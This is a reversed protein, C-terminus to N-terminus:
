PVEYIELVAVGVTGDASTVVASFSTGAAVTIVLAADRSGSALPPAGVAASAAIARSDWDDNEAIKLGDGSYIELRPDTLIGPVGYAALQPGLARILITKTGEGSVTFGAILAQAGTGVMARASLNIVKSAVTAAPDYIEALVAGPSDATIRATGAGPAASVVLGADASGAPLPFAGVAAFAAADAAAWHDNEAIKTASADFVELRPDTASNPVGFLALSPGIARVVLPKDADARVFFGVTLDAGSGDLQSRVSLNSLFSEPPPPPPPPVVPPPEVVPPPPEAVPPPVFVALPTADSVASGLSNSVIVSYDGNDAATAASIAYTDSTAGAIPAGDKQWQYTFPAAGMAAATFTVADGANVTSTGPTAIVTLATPATQPAIFDIEWKSTGALYLRATEGASRDTDGAGLGMVQPYYAGPDTFDAPRSLIERPQSWQEPRTLDPNFSVYIGEQAFSPRGSAHNLLMVYCKLYRNWHVAPGWFSDPDAGMWTKRAPYIPTVRGGRGPETWAGNYYKWVKGVPNTRDAFAMRAVCVGQTEVPGGYNGFFIYFYQHQRDLIVCPDGHGGAFFGNQATPDLADGSDLIFGLDQMTYGGDFSVAAGVKPATLTTNPILNVPEAHYWGWIVGDNEPWVAEMWKPSNDPSPVFANATQWPGFQNPGVSLWPSGHSGYWFLQGNAWFSPSNSDPAGPMSVQEVQRVRVDQAALPCGLLAAALLTFLLGKPM